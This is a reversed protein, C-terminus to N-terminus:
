PVAWLSIPPVFEILASGGGDGGRVAIGLPRHEHDAPRDARSVVFLNLGMPPTIFGLGLATVMFVCFHMPDMGIQQAVPFLLPGLIVINPTTEMFMGGLTFILLMILTLPSRDTTISTLTEVFHQPIGVATLAQAFLLAVAIIPLIVGNVRATTALMAPFDSLALRKQALGVIIAVAVAVAASETPTFVGTYIGGLIIVPM